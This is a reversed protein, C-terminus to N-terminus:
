RDRTNIHVFYHKNHRDMTQHPLGDIIDLAQSYGYAHKRTSDKKNHISFRNDMSILKHFNLGTILHKTNDESIEQWNYTSGSIDTEINAQLLKRGGSFFFEESMRYGTESNSPYPTGNTKEISYRVTSALGARHMRSDFEAYLPMATLYVYYDMINLDQGSTFNFGSVSYIDCYDPVPFPDRYKRFLEPIVFSFNKHIGEPAFNSFQSSTPNAYDIKISNGLYPQNIGNVVQPDLVWTGSEPLLSTSKPSRAAVVEGAMPDQSERAILEWSAIDYGCCPRVARIMSGSGNQYVNSPGSLNSHGDVSQLTYLGTLDGYENYPPNHNNKQYGGIEVSIEKTNLYNESEILTSKDYNSYKYSYSKKSGIPKIYIKTGNNLSFHPDIARVTSEVFDISLKFPNTLASFTHSDDPIENAYFDGTAFYVRFRNTPFKKKVQIQISRPDDQGQLDGDNAIFNASFGTIKYSLDSQGTIFIGSQFTNDDIFASQKLSSGNLSWGTPMYIDQTNDESVGKCYIESSASGNGSFHWIFNSDGSFGISWFTDSYNGTAQTDHRVYSYPNLGKEKVWHPTNQIVYLGTPTETQGGLNSHFDNEVRVINIENESAM